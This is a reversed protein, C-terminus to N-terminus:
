NNELSNKNYVQRKDNYQNCCTYEDSINLVTKCYENKSKKMNSYFGGQGHGNIGSDM